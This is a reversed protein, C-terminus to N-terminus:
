ELNEDVSVLKAYDFGTPNDACDRDFSMLYVAWGDLTDKAAVQNLANAVKLYDQQGWPFSGSPFLNNELHTQSPKYIEGQGQELTRFIMEPEFSYYRIDNYGGLGTPYRIVQDSFPDNCGVIALLILITPITKVIKEIM